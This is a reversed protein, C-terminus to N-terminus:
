QEDILETPQVFRNLKKGVKVDYFGYVTGADNSVVCRYQGQDKQRVGLICLHGELSVVLRAPQSDNFDIATFSENVNKRFEWVFKPTPFCATM